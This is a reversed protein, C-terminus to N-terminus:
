EILVEAYGKENKGMFELIPSAYKVFARYASEANFLNLVNAM